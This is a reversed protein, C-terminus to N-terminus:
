SEDEGELLDLVKDFLAKHELRTSNTFHSKEWDVYADDRWQKITEIDEFHKVRTNHLLDARETEHQLKREQEELDDILDNLIRLGDLSHMINIRIEKAQEVISSM